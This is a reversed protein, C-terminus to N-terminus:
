KKEVRELLEYDEIYFLDDGAANSILQGLRLEPAAFWAWLLRELVESKDRESEARMIIRKGV